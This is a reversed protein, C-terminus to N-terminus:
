VWPRTTRQTWVNNIQTPTLMFNFMFLDGLGVTGFTHGLFTIECTVVGPNLAPDAFTGQLVANEYVSVTTGNSVLAINAYVSAELHPITFLVTNALNRVTIAVGNTWRLKWRGTVYEGYKGLNGASNDFNINCIVTQIAVDAAAVTVTSNSTSASGNFIGKPAVGQWNFYVVNLLNFGNAADLNVQNNDFVYGWRPAPFPDTPGVALIGLLAPAIGM